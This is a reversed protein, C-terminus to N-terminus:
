CMCGCVGRPMTPTTAMSPMSALLPAAGGQRGAQPYPQLPPPQVAGASFVMDSQAAAAANGGMGLDLSLSAFHSHAPQVAALGHLSPMLQVAPSMVYQQVELEQQSVPCSAGIHPPQPVAYQGGYSPGRTQQQLHQSQQLAEQSALLVDAQALHSRRLLQAPGFSRCTLM